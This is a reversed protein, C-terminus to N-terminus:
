KKKKFTTPLKETVLGVFASLLNTHSIMNTGQTLMFLYADCVEDYTADGYIKDCIWMKIYMVLALSQYQAINERTVITNGNDFNTSKYVELFLKLFENTLIEEFGNQGEVTFANLYFEKDNEICEFGKRLAQIYSEKEIFELIKESIETKVIWEIIEYKDQFYNYFTSRMIGSETAIMKVTIKKFNKKKILHKFADAILQYTNAKSDM